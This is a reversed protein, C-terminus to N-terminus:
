LYRLTCKDSSGKKSGPESITVNVVSKLTVKAVNMQKSRRKWNGVSLKKSDVFTVSTMKVVAHYESVGNRCPLKVRCRNCNTSISNQDARLM